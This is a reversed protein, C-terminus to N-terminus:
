FVMKLRELINRVSTSDLGLKRCWSDIDTELLLDIDLMTDTAPTRFARGDRVREQLRALMTHESDTLFNEAAVLGVAGSETAFYVRRKRGPCLRGSRADVIHEGYYFRMWPVAATGNCHYLSLHGRADGVFVQSSDLTEAVSCGDVAVKSEKTLRAKRRDYRFTCFSGSLDCVFVSKGSSSFRLNLPFVSSTTEARLVIKTRLVEYVAVRSGHSAVFTSRYRSITCLLGPSSIKHLPKISRRMDFLLLESCLCRRDGYNFGAIVLGNKIHEVFLLMKNEVVYKGICIGADMCALVSTLQQSNEVSGIVVRETAGLKVLLRANRDVSEERCVAGPSLSTNCVLVERGRAILLRSETAAAGKLFGFAVADAVSLEYPTTERDAFVLFPRYGSFLAYGLEESAFTCYRHRGPPLVRRFFMDSCVADGRVCLEKMRRISAAYVSRSSDVLFIVDGLISFYTFRQTGITAIIDLNYNCIVCIDTSVFVFDRLLVMYVDSPQPRERVLRRHKLLQLKTGTYILVHEKYYSSLLIDEWEVVSFAIGSTTEVLLSDTNFRFTQRYESANKIEDFDKLMKGEDLDYVISKEPFSVFLKGGFVWMHKIPGDFRITAVVQPTIQYAVNCLMGGALFELGQQLCLSHPRACADQRALVRMDDGELVFCIWGHLRSTGFYIAETRLLSDASFGTDYVRRVDMRNDVRLRIIEGNGMGLLVGDDTEVWSRLEPNAFNTQHIVKGGQLLSIKDKQFLIMRDRSFAVKCTHAPLSGTELHVFNKEPQRQGYQTYVVKGENDEMLFFVRDTRPAMDLIRYSGFYNFRDHFVLRGFKWFALVVRSGSLLVAVFGELVLARLPRVGYVHKPLLSGTDVIEGNELLAYESNQSLLLLRCKHLRGVPVMQVVLDNCAMTKLIHMDFSRFEVSKGCSIAICQTGSLLCTAACLVSRSKKLTRM